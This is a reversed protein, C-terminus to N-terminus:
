KKTEKSWHTGIEVSNVYYKEEESLNKSDNYWPLHYAQYPYGVRIMKLHGGSTSIKAYPRHLAFTTDITADFMNEGVKRTYFQSEWKIVENKKSFHDPIDDIKLSFGVKQVLPNSKLIQLFFKLFDGPCDEHPLVDSDSYVFFGKRVEKYLDIKELAKFGLNQNLRIVKIDSSKYYELLPPYTSDNDLIIINRYGREKLSKIMKILFTYRNRNNIIIPIDKYDKLYKSFFFSRM